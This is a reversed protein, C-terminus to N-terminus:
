RLTITEHADVDDRTAQRSLTKHNAISELMRSSRGQTQICSSKIKRPFMYWTLSSRSKMFGIWPSLILTRFFRFSMLVQTGEKRGHNSYSFNGGKNPNSFGGRMNPNPNTFRRRRRYAMGKDEYEDEFDDYQYTPNDRDRICM